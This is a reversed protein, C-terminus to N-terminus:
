ARVVALTVRYTAPTTQVPPAILRVSEVTKVTLHEAHARRMVKRQAEVSDEAEVTRTYDETM